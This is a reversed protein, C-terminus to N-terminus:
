KGGEGKFVKNRRERRWGRVRKRVLGSESGKERVSLRANKM